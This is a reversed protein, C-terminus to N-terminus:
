LEPGHAHSPEPVAEPESGQEAQVQHEQEYEQMREERQERLTVRGDLPLSALRMDYGEGDKHPWVAGLKHWYPDSRKRELVSYAIYDPKQGASKNEQESMM